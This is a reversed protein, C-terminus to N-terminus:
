INMFRLEDHVKKARVQVGRSFSNGFLNKVNFAGIVFRFLNWLPKKLDNLVKQPVNLPELYPVLIFGKLFGKELLTGPRENCAM